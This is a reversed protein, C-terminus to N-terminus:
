CCAQSHSLRKVEQRHFHPLDLNQENLITTAAHGREYKIYRIYEEISDMLM